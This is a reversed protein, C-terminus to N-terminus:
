NLIILNDFLHCEDNILEAMVFMKKVAPYVKYTDNIAKPARKIRVGEIGHYTTLNGLHLSTLTDKQPTISEGKTLKFGIGTRMSEIALERSTKM